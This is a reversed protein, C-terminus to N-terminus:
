YTDLASMRGDVYIYGKSSQYKAGAEASAGYAVAFFRDSFGPPNTTGLVAPKYTCFTYPLSAFDKYSLYGCAFLSEATAEQQNVASRNPKGTAARSVCSSAAAHIVNDTTPTFCAQVVSGRSSQYYRKVAEALKKTATKAQANKVEYRVSRFAPIALSMIVALLLIVALIEMLTFGKKM